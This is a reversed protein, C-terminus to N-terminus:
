RDSFIIAADGLLNIVERPAHGGRMFRHSVSSSFRKGGISGAADHPRHLRM